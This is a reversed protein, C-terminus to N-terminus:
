KKLFKKGDRIILGKANSNVRQGMINFTKANKIKSEVTNNVDEIGAAIQFDKDLSITVGGFWGMSYGASEEDLLTLVPFLQEFYLTNGEIKGKIDTAELDLGWSEGDESTTGYLIFFEGYVSTDISQSIYACPIMPQGVPMSVTCDDNVDMSVYGMSLFNYVDVFFGADDVSVPVDTIDKWGQNNQNVAFSHVGNVPSIVWEYGLTWAYQGDEYEPMHIYFGAQDCTIVGNDDVTFSLDETLKDESDIGYIVFRGWGNKTDEYVYQSGCTITGAAEDYEGVVTAYGNAMVLQVYKKGDQTTTSVSGAQTFTYDQSYGTGLYHEIYDGDLNSLAPAKAMKNKIASMDKVASKLAPTIEMNSRQPAPTIAKMAMSQTKGFDINAMKYDQANATVTALAACSLLLFKKM